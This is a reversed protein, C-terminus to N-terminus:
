PLWIAGHSSWEYVIAPAFCRHHHPKALCRSEGRVRGHQRSEDVANGSLARLRRFRIPPLLGCLWLCVHSTFAGGGIRGVISAPHNGIISDSAALEKRRGHERRGSLVVGRGLDATGMLWADMSRLASTSARAQPPCSTPPHSHDCAGWGGRVLYSHNCGGMRVMHCRM